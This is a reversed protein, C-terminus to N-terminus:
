ISPCNDIVDGSKMMEEIEEREIESLCGILVKKISPTSARLNITQLNAIAREERMQNITAVYDRNFDGGEERDLMAVLQVSTDLDLLWTASIIKNLSVNGIYARVLTERDMMRFEDIDCETRAFKSVANLLRKKNKSLLPKLLTYVRSEPTLEGNESTLFMGNDRYIKSLDNIEM